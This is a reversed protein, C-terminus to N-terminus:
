IKFRRIEKSLKISLENLKDAAKAVEEVAMSQQQMSATVEESAAATEESVASINEIAAVINDKDENVEKIFDSISEIKASISDIAKSIQKFSNNVHEVAESQEVAREKVESMINVTKTSDNTINVVIEKIEDVANRSDEALKRIEDAVVAFGRGHEGARAAEISANLALLNTQEAISSITELINGIYKTKNDLEVIANEIKLTADDNLKTKEQLDEMAKIGVINAEIVENASDLMKETSESLSNFKTSLNATLMAGKEAEAAQETAGKAIEEVTRAVEEASASTQESTAALNEASSSVENSVVQINEVLKRIEDMMRDFGEALVGIEDSTKINNRITLDGQEIKKMNNLMMNIHKTIGKSFLFSILIVFIISIIGFLVTNKLLGVADEKIEDVYMIALISWGVKEIKTFVGFKDVKENKGKENKEVWKYDVFGENKEKMAKFIEPVPIFKGIFKKDKHTMIKGYRDLIIISGKKGIQISNIKKSLVDLSIDIALVGVLENRNYSNYVPKAVSIVLEKTDTDIYPDTWVLTNRKVAEQYWPRTTPDFGEPIETNPYIYMDKKVTGIYISKVEKHSKIFAEFAPKMWEEYEPHEVIQQVDPNLAIQEVSEEYGKTFNNISNKIEKLVNMTDTKLSKKMIDVSKNYSIIGLSILSTTILAVFMLILKTQMSIKIRKETENKTKKKIKKDM